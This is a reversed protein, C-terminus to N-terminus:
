IIRLLRSCTFCACASQSNNVASCAELITPGHNPALEFHPFLHFAVGGGLFEICIAECLCRLLEGIPTLTAHVGRATLVIRIGARRFGARLGRALKENVSRARARDLAPKNAEAGEEWGGM